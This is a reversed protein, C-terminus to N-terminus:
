LFNNMLINLTTIHDSLNNLFYHSYRTCYVRTRILTICKGNRLKDSRKSMKWNCDFNNLIEFLNKFHVEIKCSQDDFVQFYTHISKHHLEILRSVNRVFNIYKFLYRQLVNETKRPILFKFIIFHNHSSVTITNKIKM